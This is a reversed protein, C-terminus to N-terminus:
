ILVPRVSCVSLSVLASGLGSHCWLRCRNVSVCEFMNWHFQVVSWVHSPMDYKYLVKCLWIVYGYMVCVHVYMCAFVCVHVCVCIHLCVYVCVHVFLRMCMCLCVYVSLCVVVCMFACMCACLCTLACVYMRTCARVCARLCIRACVCIYVCLYLTCARVRMYVCFGMYVCVHVRVTARMCECSHTLFITTM